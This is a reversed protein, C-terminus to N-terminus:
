KVSSIATLNEEILSESLYLKPPLAYETLLNDDTNLRFDSYKQGLAACNNQLAEPTLLLNPNSNKKAEDLPEITGLLIIEGAHPYHYVYTNPFVNQFTRLLVALFEPDIAYLQIWQCFCGHENLKARAIRWFETTYLDSSGSIWPEAPQSIIVDYKDNSFNLSMRADGCFPLVRGSELWEPRMPEGNVPEFYHQIEFITPEIEAIKLKKVSSDDLAGGCTAGSGLGVVFVNKQPASNMSVPLRGLMFHTTLDSSDATRHLDFPLAAEVKGDNKLYVINQPINANVTVTTNLGERYFLLKNNASDSLVRDFIAKTTSAKTPLSLFPIGSSILAKNWAPRYILLALLVIPAIVYLKKSSGLILFIAVCLEIGITLCITSEMGSAFMRGLLPVFLFGACAAGLVSGLSSFAYLRGLRNSQWAPQSMSDLSIPFIGGCFLSAPLVVLSIVGIRELLYGIFSSSKALLQHNVNFLWPMLQILWLDLYLCCAIVCCLVALWLKPSRIRNALGQFIFTGLALGIISVAFVSAVSYTSSGVLLSFLRSWVVELIMGVAGNALVAVVIPAVAPVPEQQSDNLPERSSKSEASFDSQELSRCRSFLLVFVLCSLVSAIVVTTTLGFNPMLFFGACVTGLAAGFLNVLYAAGQNQRQSSTQELFNSVFPFTAGMAATPLLLLASAYFARCWFLINFPEFSDLNHLGFLHTTASDYFSVVSAPHNDFLWLSLMGFVGVLLELFGYTLLPKGVRSVFRGAVFSGLALGSMFVCLVLTVAPLTSGLVRLLLRQWSLEYILAAFGSICFCVFVVALQKDNASLGASKSDAEM